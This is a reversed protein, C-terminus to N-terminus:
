HYRQLLAKTQWHYPLRRSATLIFGTKPDQHQKIQQCTQGM